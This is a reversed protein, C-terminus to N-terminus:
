KPPYRQSGGLTGSSCSRLAWRSNSFSKDLNKTEVVSKVILGLKFFVTSTYDYSELSYNYIKLEMPARSIWIDTQRDTPRNTQRDTQRYCKSMVWDNKSRPTEFKTHYYIYLSCFFNNFFIEFKKIIIIIIIIIFIIIAMKANKAM